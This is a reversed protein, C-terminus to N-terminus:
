CAPRFFPFRVFVALLESFRAPRPPSYGEALCLTFRPPLEKPIPLRPSLLIEQVLPSFFCHVPCADSPPRRAISSLIDATPMVASRAWTDSLSPPFFFDSFCPIRGFVLNASRPLTSLSIEIPSIRLPRFRSAARRPSFLIRYICSLVSM